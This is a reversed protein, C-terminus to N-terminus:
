RGQGGESLSIFMTLMPMSLFASPERVEVPHLLQQPRPQVQLKLCLLTSASRLWGAVLCGIHGTVLAAAPTSGETRVTLQQQKDCAAHISANNVRIHGSHHCLGSTPLQWSSVPWGTMVIISYSCADEDRGGSGHHAGTKFCYFLSVLHLDWIEKLAIILLLVQSRIEKSQWQAAPWWDFSFKSVSISFVLRWCYSKRCPCISM